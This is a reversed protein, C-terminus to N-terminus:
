GAAEGMLAMDAKARQAVPSTAYEEVIKRLMQGAMDMDGALRYCRAADKLALPAFPSAPQKEAYGAYRDAAERYKQEEEMCAAIGTWAGFGGPGEMGAPVREGGRLLDDLPIGGEDRAAFFSIGRGAGWAAPPPVPLGFRLLALFGRWERELGAMTSGLTGTVSGSRYIEYFGDRGAKRWLFAVFSGSELYARAPVTKWFAGGGFLVSMPVQKGMGVLAASFSHPSYEPEDWAAAVALGELLGLNPFSLVPGPMGTVPNGIEKSFLHTMEHALLPHPFGSWVLHMEESWPRAVSTRAAGMLERRVLRSPYLFSRFRTGPEIGLLRVLRAHNYEHDMAAARKQMPGVGPGLFIEFHETEVRTSLSAEIHARDRNIALPDSLDLVLIGDAGESAANVAIARAGSAAMDVVDVAELGLDGAEMCEPMGAEAQVEPWAPVLCVGSAGAGVM